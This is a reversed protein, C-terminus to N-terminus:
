FFKTIEKSVKRPGRIAKIGFSKLEEFNIEDKRYKKLLKLKMVYKMNVNGSYEYPINTELVSCKFMISSYPKGVYIYVIDGSHIDTSQKWMLDKEERFYKIVDFYNPNAPILWEENENINNYSEDILKFIEDDEIVENLSVSIWTDSNMHYAKFYGDKLLLKKVENENLKLNIIEIEESTNFREGKVNMIIAFWKKNNLNRFVGYSPFNDWLFEPNSKYKQYIYNSIRNSQPFIFQESEFCNDKIDNLIEEYSLRVKNVFSGDQMENYINIYEENFDVEIVKGSITGNENIVIRAEFEDNLFKKSYYYEKDNKIFGYKELKKFNVKSRKFVEDIM